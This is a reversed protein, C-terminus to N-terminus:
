SFPKHKCSFMDGHIQTIVKEEHESLDPLIREWMLALNGINEINQNVGLHGALLSSQVSFAIQKKGAHKM